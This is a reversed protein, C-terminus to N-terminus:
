DVFNPWRRMYDIFIPSLGSRRLHAVSFPPKQPQYNPAAAEKVWNPHGIAVRGLALIDAGYQRVKEADESHWIEGATMIPVAKPVFNKFHGIAPGDNPYKDAPKFADWLSVHIYDVGEEEALQQSLETCFDFDIGHFWKSDEPSLRVGLTLNEGCKERIGRVIELLFRKRKEGTGGWADNRTNTTKSLFQHVLYGHAGHIEVGSFGASQARIAGHVFNDIAARIEKEGMQYGITEGKSNKGGSPSPSFKAEFPLARLGGHFLQLVSLCNSQGCYETFHRFSAETKSSHIGIQGPWSRGNEQVFAGATIIMGFGGDVRMSLFREEDASLRGDPHSQQNTMPALAVRNKMNHQSVPFKLDHLFSPTPM